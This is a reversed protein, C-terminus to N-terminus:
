YDDVYVVLLIVGSEFRKFLSQNFGVFCVVECLAMKAAGISFTEVYDIGYPQAYGKAVLASELNPM